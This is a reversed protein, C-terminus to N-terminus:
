LLNGGLFDAVPPTILHIAEAFDTKCIMGMYADRSRLRDIFGNNLYTANSESTRVFQSAHMSLARQKLDIVESIDIYLNAEKVDNIYYMAQKSPRHPKQDDTVYKILGSSHIAERILRSGNEHDPHYDTIYPYLVWNPRYARICRIVVDLQSPCLQIGRDPLNLCVRDAGIVESARQAEDHRIEPDGNSGMEGQTLDVLLVRMNNQICKALTGFIGIELDDPHVGFALIDYQVM